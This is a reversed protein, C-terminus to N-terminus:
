RGAPLQFRIVVLKPQGPDQPPEYVFQRAAEAAAPILLPHGSVPEVSLVGGDAGIRVSLQVAGQIRAQRALAPYGPTVQKILKPLSNSLAGASQDTSPAVKATPLNGSGLTFPVDLMTTVPSLPAGLVVAELPWQKVADVAARALLAPGSIVDVALVRSDPAMTLSLRVTGQVGALRALAPYAANAYAHLKALDRSGLLVPAAPQPEVLPKWAPNDPELAQARQLLMTGYDNEREKAERMEAAVEQNQPLPAFRPRVLGHGVQGLLQADRTTELTARVSATFAADVVPMTRILPHSPAFYSHLSRLDLRVHQETLATNAPELERARGLLEAAGRPDSAEVFNAANALVRADRPHLNVRSLWLSQAREYDSQTSLPGSQPGLVMQYAGHLSSGPHNEILWFIHDLRPQPIVNLMYYAILKARTQLDHPNTALLKEAEAAETATFVGGEEM